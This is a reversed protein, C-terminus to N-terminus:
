RNSLPGYALGVYDAVMRHSSFRVLSSMVSRRMREVWEVPVGEADALVVAWKTTLEQVILYALM